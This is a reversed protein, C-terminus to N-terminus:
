YNNASYDYNEYNEEEGFDYNGDNQQSTTTERLKNYENELAFYKDESTKASAEATELRIKM